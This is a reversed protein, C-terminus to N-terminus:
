WIPDAGGVNILYFSVRSPLRWSVAMWLAKGVRKEVHGVCEDDRTWRLAPQSEPTKSIKHGQWQCSRPSSVGELGEPGFFFQHTHVYAQDTPLFM